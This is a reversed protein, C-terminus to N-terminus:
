PPSRTASGHRRRAVRHPRRSGSSRAAHGARLGDVDRQGHRHSTSDTVSRQERLAHGARAPQGREGAAAIHRSSSHRRVWGTAVATASIPSRPAPPPSPQDVGGLDIECTRGAASGRRRRRREVGLRARRRKTSAQEVAPTIAIPRISSLPPRPRRRSGPRQDHHQAPEAAAGTRVRPCCAASSCSLPRARRRAARARSAPLRDGGLAAPDRALHVVDDRM